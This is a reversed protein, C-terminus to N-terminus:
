KGYIKYKRRKGECKEKRERESKKNKGEEFSM